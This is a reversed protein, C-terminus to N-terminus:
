NGADFFRWKNEANRIEFGGHSIDVSHNLIHVVTCIEWQFWYFRFEIKNQRLILM